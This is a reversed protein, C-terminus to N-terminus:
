NPNIQDVEPPGSRARAVRDFKLRIKVNFYVSEVMDKIYKRLLVITFKKDLDAGM